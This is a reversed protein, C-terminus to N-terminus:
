NTKRLSNAQGVGILQEYRGAFPRYYMFIYYENETEWHNGEMYTHDGIASGKKVYVYEYNYYGQKVLMVGEYSKTDFNYIMKAEPKIQWDTLAGMVYFDGDVDPADMPLSFHVYVYDAESDNDRAREMTIKYQGNIDPDYTYKTYTRPVSPVLYFHYYPIQLEIRNVYQSAYKVSKCEFTRFESGALFTNGKQLTYDFVNDQMYVPQIDYVANDFRFNQSIIVRFERSADVINQLQHTIKFNVQQGASFYKSEVPRDINIEFSALDEVVYFKRTLVIQQPDHDAYVKLIYNGSLKIRLEDNPFSFNYHIYNYTTAMSYKFGYVPMEMYGEAYDTFTIDSTTWDSSCHEITYYYDKKDSTLEDFSFNLVDDSNLKIVPYSLDWGSRFFRVTRISDNFTRDTYPGAFSITCIFLAIFLLQKKM